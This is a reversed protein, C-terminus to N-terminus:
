GWISPNYIFFPAIHRIEDSVLVNSLTLDYEAVFGRTFPLDKWEAVSRDLHCNMRPVSV